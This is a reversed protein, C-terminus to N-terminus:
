SQALEPLMGAFPPHNPSPREDFLFINTAGSQSLYYAAVGTFGLVGIVITAATTM